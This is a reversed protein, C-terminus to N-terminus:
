HERNGRLEAIWQRLELRFPRADSRRLVEWRDGRRWPVLFSAVATLIGPADPPLSLAERSRRLRILLHDLDGLLWRLRVGARGEVVRAPLRDLAAEALLRPFDVGADVALQLSGWFRGNIEMLYPTGTKTDRKFEVMAVGNWDLADLLAEAFATADAPPVISERYVSVGGSPPKERIRRHAFRAVVRGQWRLLFVGVGPGVIRTQVLLPFAQDPLAAIAERFSAPEGVHRVSLKAQGEGESAVSVAPKLVWPPPPLADLNAFSEERTDYVRQEPVPVGISGALAMLGRKDSARDFIDAAPFPLRVGGFLQRRALIPRLAAETIPLLLDIGRSTVAEHVAGAFAGPSALPGPLAIEEVCYRSAGALSAGSESGVIVQAGAAGLSRVVALAARQEGDTVLVRRGALVNEEIDPM